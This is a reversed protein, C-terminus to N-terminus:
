GHDEYFTDDEDIENLLDKVDGSDTYVEPKGHFQM